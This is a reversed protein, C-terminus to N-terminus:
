PRRTLKGGILIGIASTFPFAFPVWVPWYAKQVAEMTPTNPARLLGANTKGKNMDAVAVVLGLVVALIALAFPARGGRAISACIFGGILADVINIVFAIGIWTTAAEYVGPKFVAEPGLILFACAFAIFALAFMVVYSIVVALIARLM